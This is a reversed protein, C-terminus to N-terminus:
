YEEGDDGKVNANLKKAIEKLKEIGDDGSYTADIEEGSYRFWIDIHGNNWVIFTGPINITTGNSSKIETSNRLVLSSDSQVLLELEEQSIPSGKTGKGFDNRTVHLEYAM